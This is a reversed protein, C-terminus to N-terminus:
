VDGFPQSRRLPFDLHGAESTSYSRALRAPANPALGAPLDEARAVGDRHLMAGLALGSFGMGLDALFARRSRRCCLGPFHAM